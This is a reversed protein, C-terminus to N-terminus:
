PATVTLDGANATDYSGNAATNGDSDCYLWTSGGDGSFRFAYDYSGATSPATLDAQYEDNNTAGASSASWSPNPSAWVWTWQSSTAPDSGDPGWGLQGFFDPHTDVADSQDTLGQAYVRGYVTSTAGPALSMSTQWQLICWGVPWTQQCVSEGSCDDDACDPLGDKDNDTYDDCCVESGGVCQGNADCADHSTCTDGDNCTAGVDATHQCTGSVCTDTTCPNGDDCSGCTAADVGVDQTGTDAPSVDPSTDAVGTDSPTSTDPAVDLGTDATAADMSSTDSAADLTGTDQAAADITGTDVTGADAMGTDVTGTDVTDTDVTGTDPTGTDTAADAVTTDPTGTDKAGGNGGGPNDSCSALVACLILLYALRSMFKM